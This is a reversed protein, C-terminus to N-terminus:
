LAPAVLKPSEELQWQSAGLKLISKVFYLICFVCISNFYVIVFYLIGSRSEELQRQSACCHCQQMPQFVFYALVGICFVRDCFAM